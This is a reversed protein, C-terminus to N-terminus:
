RLAQKRLDQLVGRHDSAIVLIDERYESDKALDAYTQVDKVCREALDNVVKIDGLIKRM